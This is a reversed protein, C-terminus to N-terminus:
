KGAGGAFEQFTVRGDHNRDANEFEVFNRFENRDLIGDHNRDVQNFVNQYLGYAM